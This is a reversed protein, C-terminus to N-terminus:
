RQQRMAQEARRLGRRAADLDGKLEIARRYQEAARAPNGMQTYINGRYFYTMAFRPNKKEAEALAALAEDNHGQKAEIMAIQTYVHASGELSAAQRLKDAAESPRSACDYALAWDVLLKYDPEALVAAKEYQDVAESCRQDEYYAFALQFNARWNKPSSAVTSEWLSVPSSWVQARRYSAVGAVVLVASMAGAMARRSTRWRRLLDAVIILLGLSPLYVRREVLADKIPVISSTPALLLLFVFVGFSILPYRRRFWWAAGALGILGALGLISMPDALSEVMPFDHDINMGGPLFFM